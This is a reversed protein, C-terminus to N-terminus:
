RLASQLRLDKTSIAGGKISVVTALGVLAGLLDPNRWAERPAKDLAVVHYEGPLLGPFSFAGAPSTRGEVHRMEIIGYDRWFRRNAPFLYVSAGVVPKGSRDRVVGSLGTPGRSMSIRVGKVDEAGLTIPQGALDRGNVVVSQM